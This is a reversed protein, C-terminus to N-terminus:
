SKDIHFYASWGAGGEYEWVEYETDQFRKEVLRLNYNDVIRSIFNNIGTITKYEKEKVETDTRFKVKMAKDTQKQQKNRNNIYIMVVYPAFINGKKVAELRM